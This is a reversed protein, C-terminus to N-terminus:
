NAPKTHSVDAWRFPEGGDADTCWLIGADDYGFDAVEHLKTGVVVREGKRPVRGPVITLLTVPVAEGMVNLHRGPNAIISVGVTGDARPKVTITAGEITVTQTDAVEGNRAARQAPQNIQM